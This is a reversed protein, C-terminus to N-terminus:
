FKEGLSFDRLCNLLDGAGKRMSLALFQPFPFSCVACDLPHISPLLPVGFIFNDLFASVFTIRVEFDRTDFRFGDGVFLEGRPSIGLLKHTNLHRLFFRRCSCLSLWWLPLLFDLASWLWLNLAFFSIRFYYCPCQVVLQVSFAATCSCTSTQGVHPRPRSRTQKLSGCHAHLTLIHPMLQSWPLIKCHPCIRQRPMPWRRRRRRMPVLLKMRQHFITM